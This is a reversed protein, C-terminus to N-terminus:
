RLTINVCDMSQKMSVSSYLLILAVSDAIEDPLVITGSHQM